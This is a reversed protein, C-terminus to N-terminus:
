SGRTVWELIKAYPETVEITYGPLLYISTVVQGSSYKFSKFSVIKDIAITVLPSQPGSDHQAQTVEIFKM